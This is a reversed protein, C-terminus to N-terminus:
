IRGFLQGDFMGFLSIRLDVLFVRLVTIPDMPIQEILTSGPLPVRIPWSLSANWKDGEPVATMEEMPPELFVRTLARDPKPPNLPLPSSPLFAPSLQHVCM